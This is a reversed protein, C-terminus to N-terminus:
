AKAALAELFDKNVIIKKEESYDLAILDGRDTFRYVRIEGFKFRDGEPLIEGSVRLERGNFEFEVEFLRAM